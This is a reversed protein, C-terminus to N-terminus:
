KSGGNINDENEDPTMERQAEAEQQAKRKKSQEIVASIFKSAEGKTLDELKEVKRGTSVILEAIMNKLRNEDTAWSKLTKLQADTLTEKASAIVKNRSGKLEPSAEADPDEGTEIKYAKMLAYKDAYTQAKGSAKDGSDLGDGYSMVPFSEAPNDVNVFIYTTEIRMFVQNSETVTGKYEKRTELVDRDVVTRRAPYSYIRLEHEVKKVAELVAGESVAKYSRSNNIEIKLNKNVREMCDVAMWVKEWLSMKKIDEIPLGTIEGVEQLKPDVKDIKVEVQKVEKAKTEKKEM